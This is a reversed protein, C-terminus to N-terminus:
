KPRDSKTPDITEFAQGNNRAGDNSNQIKLSDNEIKNSLIYNEFYVSKDFVKKNSSNENKQYSDEDNSECSFVSVLLLFAVIVKLIRKKM